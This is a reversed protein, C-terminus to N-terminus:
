AKRLVKFFPLCRETSWAIFHNLTAVRNALRQVKHLNRPFPMRVIAEVKEPNAEIGREFVMFGMFKGLEVGFACKLPILKM